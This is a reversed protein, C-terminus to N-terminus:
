NLQFLQSMNEFNLGSILKLGNYTQFCLKGHKKKVNEREQPRADYMGPRLTSCSAKEQRIKKATSALAAPSCKAVAFLTAVLCVSLHCEGESCKNEQVEVAGEVGRQRARSM